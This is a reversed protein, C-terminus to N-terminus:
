WLYINWGILIPGVRLYLVCPIFDSSFRKQQLRVSTKNAFLSIIVDIIIVFFFIHFWFLCLCELEPVQFLPECRSCSLCSIGLWMSRHCQPQPSILSSESSTNRGKCLSSMKTDCAFAFNNKLATQRKYTIIRNRVYNKVDTWTRDKLALTESQLCVMCDRKAPVTFTKIFKM